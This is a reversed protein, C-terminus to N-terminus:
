SLWVLVAHSGEAFVFLGSEAIRTTLEPVFVSVEDTKNKHMHAESGLWAWVYQFTAYCGGGCAAM